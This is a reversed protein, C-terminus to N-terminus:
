GRLISMGVWRRRGRLGRVMMERSARLMRTRRTMVVKASAEGMADADLGAEEGSMAWPKEKAVVLGERVVALSSSSSPVGESGVAM